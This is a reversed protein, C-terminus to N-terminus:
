FGFYQLVNQLITMDFQNTSTPQLSGFSPLTPWLIQFTSLVPIIGCCYCIIFLIIVKPDSDLYNWPAIDKKKLM